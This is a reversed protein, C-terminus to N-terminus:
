PNNKIVNQLYKIANDNIENMLHLYDSKENSIMINLTIVLKNNVSVAGIILGGGQMPISSPAFYIKDLKIKDYNSAYELSGLNTILLGPYEKLGAQSLRTAIHKKKPSLKCLRECNEFKDPNYNIHRAFTLAEMLTSDMNSLSILSHLDKSNEVESRVNKHYSRVNDWFSQKETYNFKFGIDSVFCGFANSVPKKLRNRVNVAVGQIDNSFNSITDKRGALFAVSIASNVTVSNQRCVEKLKNTDEECFETVIIKYKYKESFSKHIQLFDEHGFDIRTKNWRKNIYNMIVKKAINGFRNSEKPLIINEPIPLCIDNVISLEYNPNEMFILIEHILNTLSLGDCIMHQCFVILDSNDLSKLLIFRILPGNEFDFPTKYEEEIVDKWQDESVKAIVKLPITIHENTEFYIDRNNNIKIHAQLLPHKETVRKIAIRLDNENVENIIKAVITVNAE